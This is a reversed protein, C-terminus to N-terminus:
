LKVRAVAVTPNPPIKTKASGRRRYGINMLRYAEGYPSDELSQRNNLDDSPKDLSQYLNLVLASLAVNKKCCEFSTWIVAQSFRLRKLSFVVRCGTIDL